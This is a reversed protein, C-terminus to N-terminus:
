SPRNNIKANVVYIGVESWSKRKTGEEKNDEEELWKDLAEKFTTNGREVSGQSAPHYARGKVVKITHFEEKIMKICYGVFEKGNDSQLIEPLVATSLIRMLANGVSGSSRDKLAAVHSFGSLPRCIM